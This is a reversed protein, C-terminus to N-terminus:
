AQTGVKTWTNTTTCQYLKNADASDAMLDGVTCTGPKTGVPIRLISGSAHLATSGSLFTLKKSIRFFRLTLGDTLAGM